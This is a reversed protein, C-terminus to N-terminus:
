DVPEIPPEANHNVAVPDPRKGLYVPTHSNYIDVTVNKTFGDSLNDKSMVYVIKLFGDEVLQTVFRHKIDIHRTRATTTANETMFIAAKNDVRCIVPLKVEIGMSALLQVIFKIEKAAECLAYHESEASSLAVVSQQKSKWSVLCGMFFVAFGSISKRSEVDAGWDADAFVHVEWVITGDSLFGTPKLLLGMDSTDLAFKTARKLEKLAGPTAAQVGKTLERVVNALDPRTYKTLYLLQGVGSRYLKQEGHPLSDEPGLPKVLQYRPTGPTKYKYNDLQDGLTKLLKKYMHPQGLWATKAEYDIHFECSLYDKVDWDIKLKFTESL